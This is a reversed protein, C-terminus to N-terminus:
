RQLFFLLSGVVVSNSIEEEERQRERGRSRFLCERICSVFITIM